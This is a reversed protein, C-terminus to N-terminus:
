KSRKKEKSNTFNENKEKLLEQQKVLSLFENEKRLEEFTRVYKKMNKEFNDEQEESFNM